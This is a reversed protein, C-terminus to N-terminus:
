QDNGMTPGDPLPGGIFLVNGSQIFRTTVSSPKPDDDVRVWEEGRRAETKLVQGREGTFVRVVEGDPRKCILLVKCSEEIPLADYM